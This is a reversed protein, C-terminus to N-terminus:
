TYLAQYDATLTSRFMRLNESEQEVLNSVHFYKFRQAQPLNNINNYYAIYDLNTVNWVDTNNEYGTSIPYYEHEQIDPEVVPLDIVKTQKEILKKTVLGTGYQALVSLTTSALQKVVGGAVTKALPWFFPAIAALIFRKRIKHTSNSTAEQIMEQTVALINTTLYNNLKEWTFNYQKINAVAIKRINQVAEKLQHNFDPRQYKHMETHQYQKSGKYRPKETTTTTTPEPTDPDIQQVYDFTARALQFNNQLVHQLQPLTQLFKMNYDVHDVKLNFQRENEAYTEHQRYFPKLDIKQIAVYHKANLYIPGEYTLITGFSHRLKPSAALTNCLALIVILYYLLNKGPHAKFSVRILTLMTLV